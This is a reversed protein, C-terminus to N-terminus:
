QSKNPTESLEEKLITKALTKGFCASFSADEEKSDEIGYFRARFDKYTRYLEGAHDQNNTM